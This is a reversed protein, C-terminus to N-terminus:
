SKTDILLAARAQLSLPHIIQENEIFQDRENNLFMLVAADLNKIATDKLDKQYSYKNQKKPDLKDALFVVKAVDSMGACATTHYYIGQYVDDDNLGERKLLEAAVPGHLLLPFREDLPTISIRLDKAKQLLDEGKMARCLDHAEACMATRARELNHALALSDSIKVVRNIHQQLGAPLSQKWFTIIEAANHNMHNKQVPSRIM